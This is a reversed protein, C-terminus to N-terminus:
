AILTSLLVIFTADDNDFAFAPFSIENDDPPVPVCSKIPTVACTDGVIAPPTIVPTVTVLPPLPYLLAAVIVTVSEPDPAPPCNDGTTPNGNDSSVTEPPPVYVDAGVIVIAAVVPSVVPVPAVAVAIKPNGTADTLKSVSPNPYLFMGVMVRLPSGVVAATIVGTNSSVVPLNDENVNSEAPSPYSLAGVIVNTPPPPNFPCNVTM